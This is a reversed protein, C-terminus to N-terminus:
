NSVGSTIPVSPTDSGAQTRRACVVAVALATAMTLGHVITGAGSMTTIM